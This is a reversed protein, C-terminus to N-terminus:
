RDFAAIMEAQSIVPRAPPADPSRSGTAFVRGEGLRQFIVADGEDAGRRFMDADHAVLDGGLVGCLRQADRHHRSRVAPNGSKSVAM